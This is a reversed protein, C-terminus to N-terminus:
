EDHVKKLTERTQETKVHESEEQVGFFPGHDRSICDIRIYLINKEDIREVSIMFVLDGRQCNPKRILLLSQM